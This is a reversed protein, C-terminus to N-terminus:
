EMIKRRNLERRYAAANVNHQRISKAFVHYGSFDSKACFFMYDHNEADLVADIAKNSPLLIPGPPLGLNIYTNYPSEIELDKNLVRQRGEEKILFRITPDAQLPWDKQLRNLYVGAITKLESDMMTEADVISALIIVQKTTLGLNAAKQLREAIWFKNSESQFREFVGAATTAWNFRYTNARFLCPWDEANYGIEKLYAENNVLAVLEASDTEISQAIKGLIAYRKLSPIIVVNVETTKGARLHAILNRNGWHDKVEYKGPIIKNPLNMKQAVADFSTFDTLIPYLATALSDYNWNSKIYLTHSGTSTDMVNDSLVWRYAFFGGVLGVILAILIGRIIVKKMREGAFICLSSRGMSSM